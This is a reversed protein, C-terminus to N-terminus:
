DDEEQHICLAFSSWFGKGRDQYHSICASSRNYDLYVGFVILVVIAVSLIVATIYLTIADLWVRFRSKRM